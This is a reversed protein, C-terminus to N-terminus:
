TPNTPRARARGPGAAPDPVPVRLRQGPRLRNPDAGIRDRNAAYWQPWAVAIQAPTAGPHLQRAAISWLSDGARVRVTSATDPRAPHPPDPRPEAARGPSPPTEVGEAPSQPGPRHRPPSAVPRAAPPLHTPAPADPDTPWTPPPLHTPAPAPDNAPASTPSLPWGPAPLPRGAASPSLPWGPAPLAPAAVGSGGQAAPGPTALAPLPALLVGLGASGAVLRRIAGPLLARALGRALRGASGPLRVGAAALLGLGLWAAVLWLATAALTAIAQDTGAEALWTRPAGIERALHHPRPRLAALTGADAAIVLAAM